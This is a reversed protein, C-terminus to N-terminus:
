PLSSADDHVAEETLAQEADPPATPARLNKAKSRGRRKRPVNTENLAELEAHVFVSNWGCSNCLVEEDIKLINRSRCHPCQDFVESPKKIKKKPMTPDLELATSCELKLEM